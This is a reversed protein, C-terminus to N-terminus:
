GCYTSRGVGRKGDKRAGVSIGTFLIIPQVETMKAMWDQSESVGACFAAALM